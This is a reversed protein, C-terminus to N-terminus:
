RKTPGAPAPKGAVPAGKQKEKEKDKGMAKPDKGMAKPDKGPQMKQDKM